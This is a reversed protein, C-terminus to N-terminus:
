SPLYAWSLVKNKAKSYKIPDYIHVCILRKTYDLWQHTEKFKEQGYLYGQTYFVGISGKSYSSSSGKQYCIVLPKNFDPMAEKIDTFSLHLEHNMSM